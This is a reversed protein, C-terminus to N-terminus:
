IVSIDITKEILDKGEYLLLNCGILFAFSFTELGQYGQGANKKLKQFRSGNFSFPLGAPSQRKKM